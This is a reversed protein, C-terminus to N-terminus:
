TNLHIFYLIGESIDVYYVNYNDFKGYVSEGAKQGEKTVICFYDREKIQSHFDFDYKEYYNQDAVSSSFHEFYSKIEEIDAEIVKKFNKHTEFEEIGNEDYFYKCYDIYDQTGEGWCCEESIYKPLSIKNNIQHYGCGILGISLLVTSMVLWILKKIKDSEM